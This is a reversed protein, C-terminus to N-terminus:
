LLRQEAVTTNEPNELDFTGVISGDTNWIYWASLTRTALQVVIETMAFQQEYYVAVGRKIELVRLDSM